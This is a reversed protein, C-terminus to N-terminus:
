EEAKWQECDKVNRGAKHGIAYMRRAITSANEGQYFTEWEQAFVDEPADSEPCQDTNCWRCTACKGTM